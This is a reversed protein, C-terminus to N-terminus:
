LGRTMRFVILDIRPREWRWLDGESRHQAGMQNVFGDSTWCLVEPFDKAETVEILYRGGHDPDSRATWRSFNFM